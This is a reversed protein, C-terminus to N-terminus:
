NLNKVKMQEIARWTEAIDMNKGEADVYFRKGEMYQIKSTNSSSRYEEIAKNGNKQVTKRTRSENEEEFDQSLAMRMGATATAGMPGAGDMVSVTFKKSKDENAYSAEMSSMQLMAMEGAKYSIRKMGNIETPLWAKLEENTLPTLEQLEEIDGRMSNATKAAKASNSVASKTEKYKEVVPNDKCSWVLSLIAILIISKKM